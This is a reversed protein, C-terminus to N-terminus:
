GATGGAGVAMELDMHIALQDVGEIVEGLISSSLFLTLRLFRVSKKANQIHQTGWRPRGQAPPPNPRRPWRWARKGFLGQVLLPLPPFGGKCEGLHWLTLFIHRHCM